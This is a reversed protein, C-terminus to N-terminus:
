KMLLMIITIIMAISNNLMHLAISMKIQGSKKYVYALIMGMTAYLAFSIINQSAHAASFLLGSLIINLWWNQRTFFYNIVLGRFLFEEVFPAIFAAAISFVILVITNLSILSDINAQNATDQVHFVLNMLIHFGINLVLILGYAKFITNIEASTFRTFYPQPLNPKLVRWLGWAIVLYVVIYLIPGIYTLGSNNFIHSLYLLNPCLVILIVFVIFIVIKSIIDLQKGSKKM